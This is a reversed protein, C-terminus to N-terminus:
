QRSGSNNMRGAIWDYVDAMVTEKDLENLLEHRDGEYCKESVDKIGLERYQEYVKRVAVGYEGCPDESGYIFFVPLEKPIRNLLEKDHLRKLLEKLTMFGNITFLFGCDPDAIYKDVIDNDRTLWDFPTRPNEIRKCYSGFALMNMFASPHRSGQFVRLVNCVCSMAGILGKSMQLTGCIIAGNIGTGYRTIYNRTILSGMSHGFIFIPLGPYEEQVTKKLRHVDRVVVTAADRKCFYGKPGQSVSRGHGLHENGAVVFGRECMYGAFSEYRDIPEAMGHVIVLIAAPETDPVWKVAHIRSENDRSDFYFDTRVM